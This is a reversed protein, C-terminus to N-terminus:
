IKRAVFESEDGQHFSIMGHLEAEKLVAWGRGEALSMEDNGTWSWEVFPKGSKHSMRCDCQGHVYGFHFEGSGTKEFEIYGEEEEDIFDRDWLSMSIIRWRGSFPIAFDSNDVM